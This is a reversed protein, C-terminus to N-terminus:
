RSPQRGKTEVEITTMGPGPGSTPRVVGPVVSPAATVVSAAFALMALIALAIARSPKHSPRDLLQRARHVVPSEARLLSAGSASASLARSSFRALGEIMASPEAGMEVAAADAALEIDRELRDLVMRNLPQWPTLRAVVRASDVWAPDGREVHAAEHLLIATRSSQSGGTLFGEPLVIVGSALAVPIEVKDTEVARMSTLAPHTVPRGKIVDAMFRHRRFVFLAGRTMGALAIAICLAGIMEGVPHRVREVRRAPAGRIERVDVDLTAPPLPVVRGIASTLGFTGHDPKIAVLATTLFPTVLAGKWLLVRMTASNRLLLGASLAVTALVASHLTYTLIVSAWTMM